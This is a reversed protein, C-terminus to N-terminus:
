AVTGRVAWARAHMPISGDPQIPLRARTRERLDTRADEDLSMAYAPAAGQGGLFPAWYADFSPFATPIDIPRVDVGGMGKERWFGALADPQCLPFRVGEDLDRARPDREVAADWFHRMLEMGRAYDWVYIAVVGGPRTVRVMSEVARHHDPVFNLVLGSVVTDFSADAFPLAQADGVEFTAREDAHHRAAHAVYNESADLGTVQGPDALALVASLLAGTGCGVDLWAGGPPRDLWTIFERAVMRSWRGVYAEYSDSRDWADQPRAIGRDSM